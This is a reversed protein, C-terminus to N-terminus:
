NAEPRPRPMPMTKGARPAAVTLSRTPSKAAAKITPKAAKTRKAAAKTTPKAAPKAAQKKSALTAKASKSAPAPAATQKKPQPDTAATLHGGLAILSAFAFALTAAIHNRPMTIRNGQSSGRVCGRRGARRQTPIGTPPKHGRGRKRFRLRVYLRQVM